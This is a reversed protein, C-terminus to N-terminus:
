LLGSYSTITNMLSPLLFILIILPLVFFVLTLILSWMFYKKATQMTKYLNDVKAELDEIKKYLQEDM